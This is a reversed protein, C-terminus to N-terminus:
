TQHIKFAKACHKCCFNLKKGNIIETHFDEYLKVGCSACIELKSQVAVEILNEFRLFIKEIFKVGSPTLKVGKARKSQNSSVNEIYGEAKLINLFNYVYTPSPTKGLDDKIRKLIYYGTVSDKSKLLVLTYLKTLNQIKLDSKEEM